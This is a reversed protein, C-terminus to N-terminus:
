FGLYGAHAKFPFVWFLQVLTPGLSLLVGRAFVRSKAVPLLFILGWIGGWVIRPYLWPLTWAPAIKVQLYTTLGTMGALWIAASNTLGGLAGASFYLSLKRIFNRM